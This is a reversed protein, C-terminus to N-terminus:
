QCADRVHPGERKVHRHYGGRRYRGRGLRGDLVQEQRATAFQRRHHPSKERPEGFLRARGLSLPAEVDQAKAEVGDDLLEVDERSHERLPALVLRADPDCPQVVDSGVGQGDRTAVEFRAGMM